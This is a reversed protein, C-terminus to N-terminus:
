GVDGPIEAEEHEPNVDTGAGSDPEVGGEYEDAGVDESGELQLRRRLGRLYRLM